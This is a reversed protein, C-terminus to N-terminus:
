YSRTEMITGGSTIYFLFTYLFFQKYGFSPFFYNQFFTLSFRKTPQIQTKLFIHVIRRVKYIMLSNIKSRTNSVILTRQLNLKSPLNNLIEPGLYSFCNQGRNKKRFPQNLKNKSRRTIRNQGVPLFMESMYPLASNDFFNFVKATM